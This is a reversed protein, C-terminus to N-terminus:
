LGKTQCRSVLCPAKCCTFIRESVCVCVRARAHSGSCGDCGDGSREEAAGITVEGDNVLSLHQQLVRPLDDPVRRGDELAVALDTDEM